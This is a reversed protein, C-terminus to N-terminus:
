KGGWDPPYLKEVIEQAEPGMSILAEEAKARVFYDKDTNMKEALKPAAQIGKPGINGLAEATTARVMASPNDLARILEPIHYASSSRFLAAFRVAGLCVDPNPDNIINKIESLVWSAEEGIKLLGEIAALRVRADSDSLYGMLGLIINRDVHKINGMLEAAIARVRADKDASIARLLQDQREDAPRILTKLAEALNTRIEANPNSLATIIYPIAERDERDIFTRIAMSTEVERAEAAEFPLNVTRSGLTEFLKPLVGVRIECLAVFSRNRLILNTGRFMEMLGPVADKAKPGVKGLIKVVELRVALNSNKLGKILEPLNDPALKAVAKKAARAKQPSSDGLLPLLEAMASAAEAGGIGGLADIAESYVDSGPDRLFSILKPVASKAAPGIKGLVTVSLRRLERDPSEIGKLLEPIASEVGVGIQWLCRTAWQLMELDSDRLVKILAPVAEKAGPEIMGMDRVAQIRIERNPDSLLKALELYAEKSKHRAICALCRIAKKRLDIAGGASIEKLAPISDPGIACLADFAAVWEDTSVPGTLATILPKIYVEANPGIAGLVGAAKLRVIVDEDKLAKELQPRAAKAKSGLKLLLEVGSRRYGVNDSNLSIVGRNLAEETSEQGVALCPAFVAFILICGLKVPFAIFGSLKDILKTKM